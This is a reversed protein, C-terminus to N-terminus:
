GYFHGKHMQSLVLQKFQEFRKMKSTDIRTGRRAPRAAGYARKTARAQEQAEWHALTAGIEIDQARTTGIRRLARVAALSVIKIPDALATRLLHVSTDNKIAGLARVAYLRHQYSGHELAYALMQVNEKRGWKQIRRPSMKVLGLMILLKWGTNM